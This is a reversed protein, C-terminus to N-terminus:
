FSIISYTVGVGVYPGFGKAGYGYGATVGIHWRKPPQKITIIERRPYVFISDLSTYMGSVYAKYDEGEFVKQIIPLRLTLSDTQPTYSDTGASDATPEPKARCIQEASVKIDKYGTQRIHTPEPKIYAVTDYVVITDAVVGGAATGTDPRCHHAFLCLALAAIVALLLRIQGGINDARDGKM